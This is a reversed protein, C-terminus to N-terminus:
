TREKISECSPAVGSKFFENVDLGESNTGGYPVSLQDPDIEKALIAGWEKRNKGYIDLVRKFQHPVLDKWLDWLPLAIQPALPLFM